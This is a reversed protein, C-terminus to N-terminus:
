CGWYSGQHDKRKSWTGGLYFCVSLWVFKVGRIYKQKSKPSMCCQVLTNRFCVCVFYIWFLSIFFFCFCCNETKRRVDWVTTKWVCKAFYCNLTTNQAQLFNPLGLKELLIQVEQSFCFFYFAPYFLASLPKLRGFSDGEDVVSRHLHIRRVQPSGCTNNDGRDRAM